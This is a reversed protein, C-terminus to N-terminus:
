SNQQKKQLSSHLLQRIQEVYGDKDEIAVKGTKTQTIGNITGDVGTEMEALSLVLAKQQPTLHTPINIKVHVYHDGHGYSHSRPIGKGPLRIITHSSTGAPINLLINEYIGPVKVTGGLVAQSLSVNVDSHIDAGERRFTKSKEVKFTIFIEKSGVPMRVTQGDEVGAPVPVAIHKRQITKGAGQCEVCPTKILVRSGRCHRCTSQMIFPGTSITEMGTGNCHHCKVKRTGPEVKQGACRPCTDSVNIDIEKNCGRAAQQFTLNMIVESAPAFGFNSEAFDGFNNFGSMRFGAEGFIKRFLEEPDVSSHFNEFGGRFPGQQGAASSFNESGMGFTDYQKRKGEDSLVEYAESVEQFKKQADPDNKNMDPHFKKALQYYAKKIDKQTSSKNVGLVEYYDRKANVNTSSRFSRAPANKYISFETIKLLGANSAVTLFKTCTCLSHRSAILKNPPKLMCRLSLTAIFTSRAAM